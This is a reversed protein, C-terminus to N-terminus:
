IKYFNKLFLIGNPASHLWHLVQRGIKKSAENKIQYRRKMRKQIIKIAQYGKLTFKIKTYEIDDVFEIPNGNYDFYILGLPLNEIRKIQNSRCDLIQLNRPFKVNDLSSIENGSCYLEQLNSPFNNPLEKLNKCTLKLKM